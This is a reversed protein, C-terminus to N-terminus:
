TAAGRWVRRSCHLMHEGCAQRKCSLARTQLRPQMPHIQRLPLPRHDLVDLTRQGEGADSLSGSAQSTRSNWQSRKSVFWCGACHLMGASSMRSQSKFCRHWYRCAAGRQRARWTTSVWSSRRSPPWRALHRMKSNRRSALPAEVALVFSMPFKDHARFLKKHMLAGARSCLRHACGLAAASQSGEPILNWLAPERLLMRMGGM